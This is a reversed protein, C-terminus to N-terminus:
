YIYTCTLVYVINSTPVYGRLIIGHFWDYLESSSPKRLKQLQTARFWEITARKTGIPGYTSTEVEQKRAVSFDDEIVDDDDDADGFKSFKDQM